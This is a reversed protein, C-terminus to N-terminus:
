GLPSAGTPAPAKPSDGGTIKEVDVGPFSEAIVAKFVAAAEEPVQSVINAVQLAPMPTIDIEGNPKSVATGLLISLLLVTGGPRGLSKKGFDSGMAFEEDQYTKVLADMRTAYYDKDVVDRVAALADRAHAFLAREYAVKVAQTVLMVPYTKDGCRLQHKPASGGLANSLESM